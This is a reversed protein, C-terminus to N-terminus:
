GTMGISFYVSSLIGRTIALTVLPACGALFGLLLYPWFRQRGKRSFLLFTPIGVVAQLLYAICCIYIYVPLIKEPAYKTLQWAVFLAPLLPAVLFASFIRM